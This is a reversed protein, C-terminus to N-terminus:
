IFAIIVDGAKALQYGLAVAAMSQARHIHQVGM